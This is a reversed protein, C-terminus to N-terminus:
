GKHEQQEKKAQEPKVPANGGKKRIGFAFLKLNTRGRPMRSIAIVPDVLEVEDDFNLGLSELDSHGFDILTVTDASKYKESVLTVEYGIVEGTQITEVRGNVEVQEEAIVPSGLGFFTLRGLSAAVDVYDNLVEHKKGALIRREGLDIGIGKVAM